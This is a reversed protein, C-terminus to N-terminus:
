LGEGPAPVPEYDIRLDPGLPRYGCRSWRPADSLSRPGPTSFAAPADAGLVVPAVYTVIRDVLGAGLLHAHLTPGGEVLVQLAGDAGLRGLVDLLDVGVGDPAARVFEVKAGAGTWATVAPDAARETTFVLTPALAPDFLPGLAPVRGTADLLVRVPPTRPPSDPVRVTLSPHDALATGAGVVIAQSEARLHHADARATSGTIWQSTGDAAASRADLSMATKLICLPRGTRRHHLYAALDEGVEAAGPGISLEISAGRLRAHGAGAVRPDPDEIATVVRAVGAAIIADSCPPTRGHHACPELTTYLTAGRARSGARSLAVAEAHPGGPPETAGTAVERGDPAVIVCGVAPLPAVSGPTPAVQRARTMWAEDSREQAERVM